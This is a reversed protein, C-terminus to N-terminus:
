EVQITKDLRLTEILLKKIKKHSDDMEDILDECKDEDVVGIKTIKKDQDSIVKDVRKLYGRLKSPEEFSQLNIMQQLKDQGQDMSPQIDDRWKQFEAKIDKSIKPNHEACSNVGLLITQGTNEVARLIGHANRIAAFQKQENEDLKKLIAVTETDLRQVATEAAQASFSGACLILALTM